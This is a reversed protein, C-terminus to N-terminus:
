VGFLTRHDGVKLGGSLFTLCATGQDMHEQAIPYAANSRPLSHLQVDSGM